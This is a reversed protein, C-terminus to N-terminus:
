PVLTTTTTAKDKATTTTEAVSSDTKTTTTTTTTAENAAASSSDDTAPKSAAGAKTTTYGEAEVVKKKFDEEKSYYANGLSPNETFTDGTAVINSCSITAYFTVTDEEKDTKVTIKYLNYLANTNEWSDYNKKKTFSVYTDVYDFSEISTVKGKFNLPYIASRGKIYKRMDEIKDDILTQYSDMAAKGNDSTVYAPFTEDVTIEKVYVTDGWSDTETKGKLAIGNRALTSYPSCTVKFTGGVGIFDDCSVSYSVYDKIAEPISDEQVSRPKVFPLGGACNYKLGEFPDIEQVEDLGEVTFDKTVKGDKVDATKYTYYKDDYEFWTMDGSEEAGYIDINATVTYKDGNKLDSKYDYDYYIFPYASDYSVDASGNGDFGSFKVEVGKFFDIEEGNKLDKVTVEFETNKLKINKDKLSDENYKVTCKVKDGNKLNKNAKKDFTIKLKYEGDSNTKLLANRMKKAETFDDAKNFAKTLTKKDLAFYKSVKSSKDSSSAYDSLDDLDGLDLDAEDALDGLASTADAMSYYSKDYCNLEAEVYGCGDIGKFEFKFLDKADIVQYKLINCLIIIAVIVVILAAAAILTIKKHGKVWEGLKAFPNPKAAAPAAAQAYNNAPQAYQQDYQPAQQQVPQAQQVPAQAPAAQQTSIGAEAEMEAISAGCGGCFKEEPGIPAGCKACFKITNM